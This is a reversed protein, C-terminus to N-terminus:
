LPIPSDKKPLLVEMPPFFYYLRKMTMQDEVYTYKTGVLTTGFRDSWLSFPVPICLPGKMSYKGRVFNMADEHQCVSVDVGSM